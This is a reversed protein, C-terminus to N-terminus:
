FVVGLSRLMEITNMYRLNFVVCVNPIKIKNKCKEQFSEQTVLVRLRPDALVYAILFADANDPELFDKVASHTYDKDSTKVAWSFVNKYASIISEEYTSKFFDEPLERCCWYTLDDKVRYLEDRVKDISCLIGRHAPESIKNWFIPFVDMPYTRRYAEIFFNADLVFITPIL